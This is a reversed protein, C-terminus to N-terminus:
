SVRPPGERPRDSKQPGAARSRAGFKAHYAGLVLETIAEASLAGSNAVLDYHHPDAPDKRYHHRMFTKIRAGLDKARRRAETQSIGDRAMLRRIREELSCVIRVRLARDPGLLYHAGRGVIVAAGTKAISEVLKALNQIYDDQGYGDGVLLSRFFEEVKSTAHEDVTALVSDIAASEEAIRALLEKDWCSFGLREAIRYGLTSGGAAPERSITIVPWHTVRTPTM